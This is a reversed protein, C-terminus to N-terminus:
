VDKHMHHLLWLCTSFFFSSSVLFLNPLLQFARQWRIIICVHPSTASWCMYWWVTSYSGRAALITYDTNVSAAPITYNTYVYQVTQPIFELPTFNETCPGGLRRYLPYQTKVPTFHGSHPAWWRGGGLAPNCIPLLQVEVEGRHWCVHWPTVKINEMLNYTPWELLEVFIVNVIMGFLIENIDWICWTHTGVTPQSCWM